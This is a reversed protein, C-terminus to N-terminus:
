SQETKFFITFPTLTPQVFLEMEKMAGRMENLAIRYLKQLHFPQRLTRRDMQIRSAQIRSPATTTAASGM